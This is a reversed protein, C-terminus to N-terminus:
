KGASSASSTLTEPAVSVLHAHVVFRKPAAGLFDFPYCTILILEPRSRIDLVDVSEPLVIETSDVLYLFVGAKTSTYIQMGPTVKRLPRVFTDRHSALAVTGLGGLQATGHLHGLGRLLSKAQDDELVAVSLHLRPIEVRAIVSGSAPSAEV